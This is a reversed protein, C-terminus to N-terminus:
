SIIPFKTFIMNCNFISRHIGENDFCVPEFFILLILSKVFSPNLKIKIQDRIICFHFSNGFRRM